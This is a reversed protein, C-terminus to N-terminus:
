KGNKKTVRALYKRGQETHALAKIESEAGSCYTKQGNNDWTHPDHTTKKGCDGTNISNGM